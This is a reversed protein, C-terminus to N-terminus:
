VLPATDCHVVVVVHLPIRPRRRPLDEPHEALNNAAAAVGVGGGAAASVEAAGDVAVLLISTTASERNTVSDTESVGFSDGRAAAGAALRLALAVADGRDALRFAVRAVIVVLLAAVVGASGREVPVDRGVVDVHLGLHLLDKQRVLHHVRRALECVAPGRARPREAARHHRQDIASPPQQRSDFGRRLAGTRAGARGDVNGVRVERQYDQCM